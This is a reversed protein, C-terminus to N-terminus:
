SLCYIWCCPFQGFHEEHPSDTVPKPVTWTFAPAINQATCDWLCDTTSYQSTQSCDKDNCFLYTIDRVAKPAPEKKFLVPQLSTGGQTDLREGSSEMSPTQPCSLPM